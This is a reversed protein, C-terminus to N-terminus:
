GDKPDNKQPFDLIEVHEANQDLWRRGSAAQREKELEAECKRLQVRLKQLIAKFRALKGRHHHSMAASAGVPGGEIHNM